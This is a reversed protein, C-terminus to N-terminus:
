AELWAPGSGVAMPADALRIIAMVIDKRPDGLDEESRTFVVHQGDPSVCGGYVHRDEEAYIPGRRGGDGDAAWLEARGDKEPVVGRSYIVRRSDPFWDPTCNYREVESLARIEGTEADLRAINWAPGLGNATGIF